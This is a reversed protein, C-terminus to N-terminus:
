VPSNEEAPKKVTIGERIGKVVFGLKELYVDETPSKKHAENIHTIIASILLKLGPTTYDKIETYILESLHETSANRAQIASDIVDAVKEAYVTTDPYQETLNLVAQATGTEILSNNLNEDDMVSFMGLALLVVGVVISAISIRTNRKKKAEQEAATPTREITAM